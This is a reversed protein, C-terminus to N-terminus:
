RGAPRALLDLLVRALSADLWTFSASSCASRSISSAWIRAWSPPARADEVQAAVARHEAGVDAGEDGAQGLVGPGAPPPPPRPCGASGSAARLSAPEYRGHGRRARSRRSDSPPTVKSTRTWGRAEFPRGRPRARLAGQTTRSVAGGTSPAALSASTRKRPLVSSTAGDATRSRRPLSRGSCPRARHRPEVPVVTRARRPTPRGARSRTRPPAGAGAASKTTRRMPRRAVRAPGTGRVPPDM